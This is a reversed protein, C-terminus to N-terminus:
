LRELLHRNVHDLQKTVGQRVQAERNRLRLGQKCTGVLLHRGQHYPSQLLVAETLLRPEFHQAQFNACAFRAAPM